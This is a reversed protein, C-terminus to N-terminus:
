TSGLKLIFVGVAWTTNSKTQKPVFPKCVHIDNLEHSSVPKAFRSNTLEHLPLNAPTPFPLETLPKLPLCLSQPTQQTPARAAPPPAPATCTSTCHLRAADAARASYSYSSAANTSGTYTCGSASYRTASSGPTPLAWNEIELDILSGLSFGPGKYSPRRCNVRKPSYDPLPLLTTAWRKPAPDAECVGAQCPSEPPTLIGVPPPKLIDDISWLAMRFRSLISSSPLPGEVVLFWSLQGSCYGAHAM